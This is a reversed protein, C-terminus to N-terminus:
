TVADPGILHGSNSILMYLIASMFYFALMIKYCAVVGGGGGSGGDLTEAFVSKSWILASLHLFHMVM